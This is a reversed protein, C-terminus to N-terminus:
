LIRFIKRSKGETRPLTGIAVFNLEPTISLKKQFTLLLINKIENILSTKYQKIEVVIIIRDIPNSKNIHVQFVETIYEAYEFIIGEIASLFVNIGKITLMDDSRGIIEFRFGSAGCKCQDTSLIRIIDNTRYRVLPQSERHLHTLVLEGIAQDEIEKTELSIPDILEPFLIDGALFHLGQQFACESGFISLVDALGYNANMAKIKWVSEIEEKFNSNQLGAEGGFLGLKLKLDHPSLGFDTHLVLAIKSLYSPTCHIATPHITLITDILNSTNGVGFPIVGAGTAELCQHDTYGGSWMCYNLCHIVIDASTLGSTQFCRKGVEVTNNIDFKSLAILLPKNTTGSTKHIRQINKKEICLNLGFPPNSTQDILIEQKTTFPLSQFVEISDIKSEGYSFKKRYFPSKALIYKFQEKLPSSLQNVSYRM